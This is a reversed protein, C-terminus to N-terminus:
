GKKWRPAHDQVAQARSKGTRKQIGKIASESLAPRKVPDKQVPTHNVAGRVELNRKKAVNKVDDPGSVWAAPDCWGRRDAIGSCYYKGSTSIGAQQAEKLMYTAQRKPMDDLWQGAGRGENWTRETGHTRPAQQLACMEAWRESQGDEIMALYHKQVALSSEAIEPPLSM